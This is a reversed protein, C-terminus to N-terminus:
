DFGIAAALKLSTEVLRNRENLIPYLSKRRRHILSKQRLLWDDIGNLLLEGIQYRTILSRKLESLTETGGADQTITDRWARLEAAVKSSDAIGPFEGDKFLKKLTHYGHKRANVNNLSAKRVRKPKMEEVSM